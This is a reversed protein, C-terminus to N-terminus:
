LEVVELRPHPAKNAEEITKKRAAQDNTDFAAMWIEHTLSHHCILSGLHISSYAPVSKLDRESGTPTRPDSPLLKVTLFDRGGGKM